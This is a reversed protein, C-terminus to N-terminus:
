LRAPALLGARELAGRVVEAEEETAEVLPLRLGGVDHGLLNLAAKVPIPNTTVALAGVLPRLEEDIEKAGHQDGERFRRIMEKVRTGV